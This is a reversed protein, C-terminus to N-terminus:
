CEGERPLPELEIAAYTEAWYTRGRYSIPEDFRVVFHHPHGIIAEVARAPPQIVHGTVGDALPVHGDTVTGLLEGTEIDRHRAKLDCEASLRVRVRDGVRFTTPEWPRDLDCEDIM